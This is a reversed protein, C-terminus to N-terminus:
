RTSNETGAAVHGSQGGEYISFQAWVPQHGSIELVERVSLEFQRMLDMVDSRGTFEITARRDFLINDELAGRMTTPTGSVAWTINAMQGLEGLNQVNAGLDGLLIVDDEHRGDDRVARFVDDLLDLEAATRDAVTHVNILTFTFAEAADPGRARFSAVLSEHRLRGITVGALYVTCRDIEISARDFLFADYRETPDRGVSPSVAFDYDQGKANVEEVLQVIAGQNRARIDQLAVVDFQRIVEVLYGLVHRRSLKNQDLPGPNFTAIRITSGRSQFPSQDPEAGADGSTGRSDGDARPKVGFHDLGEIRYHTFFYWGGTASAILLVLYLLKQM